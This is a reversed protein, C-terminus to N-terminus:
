PSGTGPSCRGRGCRYQPADYGAKATELAQDSVAGASHLEKTRNYNSLATQRQVESAAQGARASAVAAEAQQVAAEQKSRDLSVIVQGKQVAQGENVCVATVRSSLKPLVAEENSGKVRGSYSSYRTIDMTKVVATEVKFVNQVEEQAKKGCGSVVIFLSMIVLVVMVNRYGKKGKM